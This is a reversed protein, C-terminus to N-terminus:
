IARITASLHFTYKYYDTFTVYADKFLDEVQAKSLNESM